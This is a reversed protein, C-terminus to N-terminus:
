NDKIMYGIGRVTTIIKKKPNKEIKRRLLTIYVDGINHKKDSNTKNSWIKKNIDERSVMKNKNLLLLELLKYEKNTLQIQKDGILVERTNPNLELDKVKLRNMNSFKKQLSILYLLSSFKLYFQKPTLTSIIYDNLGYELAEELIFKNDIKTIAVLIINSNYEKKYYFLKKYDLATITDVVLLNADDEKIVKEIEKEDFIVDVKIGNEELIEPYNLNDLFGWSYYIIKM